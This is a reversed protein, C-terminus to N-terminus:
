EMVGAKKLLAKARCKLCLQDAELDKCFCAVVERVDLAFELLEPACSAAKMQEMSMSVSDGFGDESNHLLYFGGDDKIAFYGTDDPVFWPANLKKLIDSM